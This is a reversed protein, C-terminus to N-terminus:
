NKRSFRWLFHFWSHLCFRDRISLKQFIKSRKVELVRFIAHDGGTKFGSKEYKGTIFFESFNLFIEDVLKLQMMSRIYLNFM